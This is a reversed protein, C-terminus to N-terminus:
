PAAEVMGWTVDPDMCCHPTRSRVSQCVSLCVSVSVCMCLRAHGCYMKLRRRTVCFTVFLCVSLFETNKAVTASPSIRAGGFKAHHYLGELM